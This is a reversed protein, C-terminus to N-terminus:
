LLMPDGEFLRRGDEVIRQESQPIGRSALFGAVRGNSKLEAARKSVTMYSSISPCNMRM